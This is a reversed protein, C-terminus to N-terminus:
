KVRKLETELWKVVANLAAPDKVRYLEHEASDEPPMDKDTGLRKVMRGLVEVKRKRDTAKLWEARATADFPDFALQPIPNFTKRSSPTDHCALCAHSPLVAVEKEEKANPDFKPTSAYTDRERWFTDNRKQSKFVDLIGAVFRDKFDDRDPINGTALVDAFAPGTFIMNSVADRTLAPNNLRKVADDLVNALFARDGESLGM